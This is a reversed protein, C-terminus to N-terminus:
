SCVYSAVMKGKPSSRSQCYECPTASDPWLVPSSRELRENSLLVDETNFVQTEGTGVSSSDKSSSTSCSSVLSFVVFSSNVTCSSSPSSNVASFASCTSLPVVFSSMGSYSSNYLGSTWRCMYSMRVHTPPCSVRDWSICHYTFLAINRSTPVNKVVFMHLIDVTFYWLAKYHLQREARVLLM